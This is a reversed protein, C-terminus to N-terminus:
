IDLGENTAKNKCIINLNLDHKDNLKKIKKKMKRDINYNNQNQIEKIESKL